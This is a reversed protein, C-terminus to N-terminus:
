KLLPEVVRWLEAAALQIGTDNWHTDDRWYLRTGRATAEQFAPMLNVVPVGEAKLGTEIAALLEPGRALAQRDEPSLARAHIQEKEPVLLVVLTMNRERFRRAIKGVTQLVGPADNEPTLLPLVRLNERYFLMPGFQPDDAGLVDQPWGRFVLLKLQAWVRRGFYSVLSTNPWAQSLASPALHDWLIQPRPADLGMGEQRSQDFWYDIAQRLFLPAGLERASLNWVVVKPPLDFQGAGIFKRMELFPGAGYMGQNYVPIGGIGGLAQAVNQTGLSLMFSDGLMVVPYPKGLQGFENFYGREDRYEVYESHFEAYRAAMWPVPVMQTLGAGTQAPVTRMSAAPTMAAAQKTESRKPLWQDQWRFTRFREEWDGALLLLWLAMGFWTWWRVRRQPASEFDTLVEPHDLRKDM